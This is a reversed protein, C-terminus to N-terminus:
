QCQTTDAKRTKCCGRRRQGFWSPCILMDAHVDSPNLAALAGLLCFAFFLRQLRDGGANLL